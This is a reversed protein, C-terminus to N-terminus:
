GALRRGLSAFVGGGLAAAAAVAARGRVGRPIAITELGQDESAFRYKYAESGELFRYEGMGDEVAARISHALLVFGVSGREWEPDRGAQYYLEAGAFRFGYWAAAPRGDLELLWLRLWGRELARAAFERHFAEAAPSYWAGTDGWRALHLRFLVGLDDDLREPDDCLRFELDHERGLKRERRRVQERFNASRSALLEEWSTGDFHLVPSGTHRLMRGGLLATWGPEQPMKDGLFLDFAERDLAKRFAQAAAARDAPACIPSLHDGQGHGLFRIVRLPRMSSLYLPLIAVIEGAEDRCVTALLKRGRGFYKWWLSSWEWTAFINGSAEALRTWDEAFADLSQLPELLLGTV